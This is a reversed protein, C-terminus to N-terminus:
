AEQGYLAADGEANRHAIWEGDVAARQFELAQEFVVRWPDDAPLPVWEDTVVDFVEIGAVIWDSADDPDPALHAMMESEALVVQKGNVLIWHRYTFPYEM